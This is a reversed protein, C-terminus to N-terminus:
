GRLKKVLTFGRLVQSSIQFLDKLADFFSTSRIEVFLQVPENKAIYYHMEGPALRQTEGAKFYQKASADYLTGELVHVTEIADKHFHPGIYSGGGELTTIFILGRGFNPLRISSSGPGVRMRQLIPLSAVVKFPVHQYNGYPASHDSRLREIEVGLHLVRQTINFISAEHPKSQAAQKM